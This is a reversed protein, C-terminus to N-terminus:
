RGAPKIHSTEITRAIRVLDPLSQAALKKMLNHRHVKVTVESVGIEAAAQKNMLGVAVLSMVEKERSSLTNYRVRVDRRKREQAHRTEDGDIARRVADLLDQERVPKTLFDIAGAKMAKVSMSIDGHGTVFIIPIDIQGATLEAQFDLGSTGPMRIDLVLCCPVDERKHQAFEATSAFAIARFGVSEVLHKLGDRIDNNDDIIFVIPISPVCVDM